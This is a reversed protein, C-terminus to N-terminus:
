GDGCFYNVIIICQVKEFIQGYQKVYNSDSSFDRPQAEIATDALVKDLNDLIESPSAM